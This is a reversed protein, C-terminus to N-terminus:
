TAAVRRRRNSMRKALVGGMALSLALALVSVMKRFQM